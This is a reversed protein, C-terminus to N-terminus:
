HHEVVQCLLQRQEESKTLIENFDTALKVAREACDNVVKLAHVIKCAALYGENTSWSTVAEGLFQQSLGFAHFLNLSRCTVFDAVSLDKFSAIKNPALRRVDTACPEKQLAIVTAEKTEASVDNAFLPLAALDENFYWLHLRM